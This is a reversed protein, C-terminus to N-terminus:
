PEHSLGLMVALRALIEQLAPSQAQYSLIAEFKALGERSVHGDSSIVGALLADVGAEIMEDDTQPPGLGDSLRSLDDWLRSLEELENKTFQKM